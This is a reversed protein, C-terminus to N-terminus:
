SPKSYFAENRKEENKPFYKRSAGACLLAPAPPLPHPRATPGERTRYPPPMQQQVGDGPWAVTQSTSM